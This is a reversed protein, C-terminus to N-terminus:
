LLKRSIVAGSEIDVETEIRPRYIFGAEQIAVLLGEILKEDTGDVPKIKVINYYERSTLKLGFEDASELVRRSVSYPIISIRHARAQTKLAQYEELREKHRQFILPNDVLEHGHHDLCKVTLIYGKKGSGRKGISKYSVKCCWQCGTQRVSTLNRQRNSTIDGEKNREVMKKLQRWNRTEEGHFVCAFTCGPTPKTASHTKVIDFGQSLSYAILRTQCDDISSFVEGTVPSDLYEAPYRNVAKEVIFRLAEPCGPPARWLPPQISSM